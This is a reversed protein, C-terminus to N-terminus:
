PFFLGCQAIQEEPVLRQLLFSFFDFLFFPGRQRLAGEAPVPVGSVGSSRDKCTSVLRVAIQQAGLFGPM